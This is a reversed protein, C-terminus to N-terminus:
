AKKTKSVTKKTTTKKTNSVVKPLTEGKVKPLNKKKEEKSLDKIPKPIPKFIAIGLPPVTINISRKRNQWPIGEVKLPLPNIRDSGNYCFKDSNILEEYYYDGDVGIIM